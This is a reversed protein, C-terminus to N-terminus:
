KGLESSAVRSRVGLTRGTNVTNVGVVIYPSKGGRQRTRQDPRQM